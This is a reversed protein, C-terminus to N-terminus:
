DNGRKMEPEDGTTQPHPEMYKWTSGAGGWVGPAPPTVHDASKVVQILWYHTSIHQYNHQYIPQLNIWTILSVSLVSSRRIMIRIM